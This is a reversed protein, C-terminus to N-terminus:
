FPVFLGFCWYSIKAFSQFFIDPKKKHIELSFFNRPFFDRPTIENNLELQADLGIM